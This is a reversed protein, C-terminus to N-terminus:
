LAATLPLQLLVAPHQQLVDNSTFMGDVGVWSSSYWGGEAGQSKILNSVTPITWNEIVSIYTNTNQGVGVWINGLWNYQINGDAIPGSTTPVALYSPYIGPHFPIKRAVAQLFLTSVDRPDGTHTGCRMVKPPM